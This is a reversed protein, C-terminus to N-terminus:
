TKPKPKRHEKWIWKGPNVKVQNSKSKKNVKTSKQSQSLKEKVSKGNEHETKNNQSRNKDNEQIDMVQHVAYSIDLRTFTLDQLSGALSQYLTLDSAPDGDNRLKSETDVLTRSSNCNIMHARELIEVAYKRQSLFMGISDRMVSIGLYYNLSGIDTRKLGDHIVMDDGGGYGRIGLTGGGNISRTALCKMRHCTASERFLRSIDEPQNLLMPQQNIM